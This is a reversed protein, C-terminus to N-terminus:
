RQAFFVPIREVIAGEFDTLNGCQHSFRKKVAVRFIVNTKKYSYLLYM